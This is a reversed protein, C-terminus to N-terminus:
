RYFSVATGQGTQGDFRSNGSPLLTAVPSGGSGALVVQTGSLNWASISKLVDSSCGRTSARYGGTWSTLTMFLQCSDGSSAITWGGLLDTRGLAAANGAAPPTSAVVDGGPTTTSGPAAGPPPTTGAVPPLSGTEVPPVAAPDANEAADRKMPPFGIAGISGCGALAVALAVPALIKSKMLVNREDAGASLSRITKRPSLQLSNRAGVGALWVSEPARLLGPAHEPGWSRGERRDAPSTSTSRCAWNPRRPV